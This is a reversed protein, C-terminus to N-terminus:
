GQKALTGELMIWDIKLLNQNNEVNQIAELLRQKNAESRLLYTTEDLEATAEAWPITEEDLERLRGIEEAGELDELFALLEEWTEWDLLVARKRGAADVVFQAAQLLQAV